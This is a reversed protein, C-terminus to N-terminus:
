PSTPMVPAIAKILETGGARIQYGQDRFLPWYDKSAETLLVERAGRERAYTEIRELAYPGVEKWQNPIATLLDVRVCRLISEIGTVPDAQQEVKLTMDVHVLERASDDDVRLRIGADQGTAPDSRTRITLKRSTSTIKQEVRWGHTVDM